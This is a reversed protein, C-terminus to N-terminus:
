QPSSIRRLLDIYRPDSRVSDFVPDKFGIFGIDRHEYAKELWLFTKDKDGLGLYNIAVTYPSYRRGARDSRQQIWWERAGRIGSSEYVQKLEEAVEPTGNLTFLREYANVANDYMGQADYCDRLVSYALAFNPDIELTKEEQAIAGRYDRQSFFIDGEMYNSVASLPDLELSRHIEDLAEGYRGM